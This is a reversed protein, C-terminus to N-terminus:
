ILIKMNVFHIHLTKLPDMNKQNGDKQMM